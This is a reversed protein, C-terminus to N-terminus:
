DWFSTCMHMTVSRMDKVAAVQLYYAIGGQQNRKKFLGEFFLAKYDEKCYSLAICNFVDRVTGKVTIIKKLSNNMKPLIIEAPSCFMEQDLNVRLGNDKDRACDIENLMNWEVNIGLYRKSRRVPAPAHLIKLLLPKQEQILLEM